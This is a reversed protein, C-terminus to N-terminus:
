KLLNQWTMYSTYSNTLNIWMGPIYSFNLLSKISNHPQKIGYCQMLEQNCKWIYFFCFKTMSQKQYNVLKAIYQLNYHKNLWLIYVDFSNETHNTYPHLVTAVTLKTTICFSLISWCLKTPTVPLKLWLYFYSKEHFLVTIMVIKKIWLICNPM